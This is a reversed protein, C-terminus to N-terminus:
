TKKDLLISHASDIVHQQGALSAKHINTTPTHLIKNTLQNALKKIVESAQDGKQLQLLAEDISQKKLQYAQERYEQILPSAQVSAEYKAMFDNAQTDVIEEAALASNKRSQKNEKIIETLDDVSYLYVNNLESISPEIDRPVALDVIFIPKNKRKNLSTVIMEKLIIPKTSATSSIIMDVEHIHDAIEALNIAYGGLQETIRHAHQLTRNAIILKGINHECLHRGVLKITEGAGILLATQQNLNGFFQESLGVASFAISISSSGIATDTRIQKVTKFIHQFLYDLNQHVSNTKVAINYAAKIQGFIQPEGMVLSDLGSAVRMLHRIAELDNYEYLYQDISNDKLDFFRYLWQRIYKSPISKLNCYIETRNCTSLIINENKQGSDKLQALATQIQETSFAVKERIDIPATEHNIGLVFLNM